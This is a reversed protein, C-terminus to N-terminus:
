EEQALREHIDGVLADAEKEIESLTQDWTDDAIRKRMAIDAFRHYFASVEPQPLQDLKKQDDETFHKKETM